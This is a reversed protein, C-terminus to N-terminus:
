NKTQHGEADIKLDKQTTARLNCMYINACMYIYAYTLVGGSVGTLLSMDKLGNLSPMGATGPNLDEHPWREHGVKRHRTSMLHSKMLLVGLLCDTVLRSNMLRTSLLYPRLDRTGKPRTWM